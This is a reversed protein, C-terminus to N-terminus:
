WESKTYSRIINTIINDRKFGKGKGGNQQDKIKGARITIFEAKDIIKDIPPIDGFSYNETPIKDILRTARKTNSFKKVATMALIIIRNDEPLTLTKANRIDLEYLYFYAKGNPIDGEPHHTHTFEFAIPVNKHAAKINLGAMDWNGYHETMAAIKIQKERGDLYFTADRDGLTSAAAIYLKTMSKPLDITQGRAVMVDSSAQTDPMKFSVGGATFGQPCLEAPLSCGSGQLIVNRMSENKTFGKSNYELDLKKFNERGKKDPAELKIRFTKIGYPALDFKLKKSKSDAKKIAQENALCESAELIRAAFTLEVNKLAEGSGENVRVIIGDGDEALKCCRLIANENNIKLFSYGSELSGERRSSTQYAILPKQFIESQRQTGNAFGGEHSFIGFAFNNRGIDLLDQRAQKTFAGTPTHLCTLRLTNSSPKDWGYKCDSFVSVGYKGSGATIDAWKQAPVEYLKESNNERKIVGLGLDYSATKNYCSFPFVAKLMTRRNRWDVTNEVRIFEGGSELYIIQDIFSHDLERSVKIAIRAPGAEIIEFEPSNAFFEPERDIDKKRMEWAPYPLDGIDTLGAMKIPADLVNINNKKDIVTALDGNKNFIVRYKENELTHLSVALDTKIECAKNAPVVDYVAYGMANVDAIFVIDFEKGSKKIIQSPVEKGTADLVKVFTSNHVLKIHASVANKRRFPSPNYVAVGCETVFSTNLENAMAGAAGDLETEFESISAYYDSQGDIYIDMNGTGTIDDHFQHQIVRKWARSLNEKPYKYVGNAEAAICMKEAIDAINENQANLRKNMARSTYAGAGHSTMLLENNWTKLRATESKPLKDLDRFIEDSTASVVEFDSGANKEVSEEIAQVSEETPAGGWDGTGYLHLTQPIGSEFANQTIKNIVSIDGRIDGSFKYRYSQANLCAYVKSGDVGQWLGLDFPVGYASGWSLKQTTLGKLGAHKMISPLAYGFGFCDPLFIDCSEKGFKEKFYGNGYIINRFLAEPSPINVDGNEYSSGAVNWSGKEILGKLYEFHKPYYEEALQYRFAGEFNFKYRPYKDALDFNKELTDPLYEKITTALNWRWVTDLHSTAVAYVKKKEM